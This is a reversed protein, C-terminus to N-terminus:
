ETMHFILFTKKSFSLFRYSIILQADTTTEYVFFNNFVIFITPANL